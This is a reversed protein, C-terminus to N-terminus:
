LFLLLLMSSSSSLVVLLLYGGGAVGEAARDCAPIEAVIQALMFGQQKTLERLV